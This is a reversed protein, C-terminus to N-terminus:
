KKIIENYIRDCNHTDNYVFFNNVRKKYNDEMVFNRDIVRIINDVLDSVNTSVDGFGLTKFDFYGEGYQNKRFHEYDYQFYCIPKYQYAFDFWVSSYDTILRYVSKLM